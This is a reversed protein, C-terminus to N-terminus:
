GYIKDAGLAKLQSIHPSVTDFFASKGVTDPFEPFIPSDENYTWDENLERLQFTKVTTKLYPISPYTSGIGTIPYRTIHMRIRHMYQAITLYLYEAWTIPRVKSADKDKPLKSICDFVKFTNVDQYILKFYRGEIQVPTHRNAPEQYHSLISSRGEITAWRVREKESLRCSTLKLTKPDVLDVIGDANEILESAYGRPIAYSLTIPEIGRLTQYLGVLSTSNDFSRPSELDECGPDMGTIVNRTSHIVKRSGWKAQLFGHKGGLMLIIANYIENIGSQISWRVRDTAPENKFALSDPIGNATILVKRYLKNIDDEIPRGTDDTKVDRLGAPMVILFHIDAIHKYKEIVDLRLSRKVSKNRKFNIDMFHSMFFSFGTEGDLIDSKVFDKAKDDWTAYMKGQLIGSYLAGLRNLEEYIKPHLVKCKLNIFSHRSNREKTGVRGFIENSYLGQSHFDGTVNDYIDLAKVPLLGAIRQNKNDLLM